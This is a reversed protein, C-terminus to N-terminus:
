HLPWATVEDSACTEPLKFTAHGCAATVLCASVAGALLTDLRGM